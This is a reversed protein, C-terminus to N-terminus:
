FSNSWILTIRVSALSMNSVLISKLTTVCKTLIHLFNECFSYIRPELSRWFKTSHGAEIKASFSCTITAKKAKKPLNLRSFDIRPIKVICFFMTLIRFFLMFELPRRHWSIAIKAKKKNKAFRNHWRDPNQTLGSEEVGYIIELLYACILTVRLILFKLIRLMFKSNEINLCISIDINM